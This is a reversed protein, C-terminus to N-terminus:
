RQTPLTLQPGATAQAWAGMPMVLLAAIALSVWLRTM